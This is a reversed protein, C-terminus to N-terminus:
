VRVVMTGAIKDHWSQRYPRSWTLAFMDCLNVIPILALVYYSFSRVVAKGTTIDDDSGKTVVRLGTVRKGLTHGRMGLMTTEYVFGILVLVGIVGALYAYEIGSFLPVTKVTVATERVKDIRKAIHHALVLLLPMACALTVVLVVVSDILRALLREGTSALVVVRPAGPASARDQQGAAAWRPQAAAAVYASAPLGAFTVRGGAAALAWNPQEQRAPAGPPPGPVPGPMSTSRGASYPAQSFASPVVITGTPMPESDTETEAPAQEGATATATATATGAAAAAAALAAAASTSRQPQPLQPVQQYSAGPPYGGPARQQAAQQQAYQQQAAQL